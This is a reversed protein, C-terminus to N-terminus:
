RRQLSRLWARAAETPGYGPRGFQRSLRVHGFIGREPFDALVMDNNANRLANALLHSQSRGCRSHRSLILAPPFPGKHAGIHYVPSFSNLESEDAFAPDLLLRRLFASKTSPASLDFAAGENLIVGALEHPALGHAGLLAPDSALLAALHAGSSHGMLVIRKQDIGFEDAREFLSAVAAATDRALDAVRVEPVMRFNLSAFHYGESHAFAAKMDKTRRTKDGFQWAGGHLFAILPRPEDSPLLHLDLAQLPHDGYSITVSPTLYRPGGRKEASAGYGLVLDLLTRMSPMFQGMCRPLPRM